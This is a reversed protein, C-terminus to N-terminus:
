FITTINYNYDKFGLAAPDIRIGTITGTWKPHNKMYITYTKWSGSNTVYFEVRKDESYGPSASTTFYIQGISNPANSALNTEIADYYSADLSLTASYIYPDTRQPNIFYKGSNVSQDEVNSAKWGEFNNPTNFHWIGLRRHSDIFDSPDYYNVLIQAENQGTVWANPLLYNKRIEFHLHANYENNYGKGITGIRQGKYVDGSNIIIDRLHAYNSWVVTGDQLQHEILIINGWRSGYNGAAVIRGNSIAYVSDGLDTDGGGNGNWDEGPHIVSGENELFDWGNNNNALGHAYGVGDPIGVPYDFGDSVPIAACVVNVILLTIIGAMGTKILARLAKEIKQKM